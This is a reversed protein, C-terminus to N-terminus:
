PVERVAKCQGERVQGTRLSLLTRDAVGPGCKRDLMQATIFQPALVLGPCTLDFNSLPEEGSVGDLSRTSVVSIAPNCM